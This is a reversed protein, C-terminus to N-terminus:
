EAAIGSEMESLGDDNFCVLNEFRYKKSSSWDFLVVRCDPFELSQLIDSDM